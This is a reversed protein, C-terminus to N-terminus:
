WGARGACADYQLMTTRCCANSYLVPWAHPSYPMTCCQLMSRLMTAYVRSHWQVRSVLLVPYLRKMLKAMKTPTPAGGPHTGGQTGASDADVVARKANTGVQTTFHRNHQTTIHHTTNHQATNHQTTSYQITNHQTTNHQTANCQVTCKYQITNYMQVTRAWRCLSNAIM